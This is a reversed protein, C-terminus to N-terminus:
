QTRVAVSTSGQISGIDDQFQVFVRNIAPLFPVNGKGQVFIGFTPTANPAISTAVSAAPPAMCQGTTPVTQCITIAVPLNANGINASVTVQAATGLNVTAVAFAGAGTSGPIDVIGDNSLTAALAVIDPPQTADASFLLTDLGIVSAAAPANACSFTFPLETAPMPATPTLALEFSQAAGPAISVPVNPSGTLANTKASTAQFSFSAPLDAAPLVTCTTATTDKSSNIVTALVTATSGIKVSRSSPLVASLLTIDSKSNATYSANVTVPANMTVTCAGIGACGGSWGAFTYGQAPVATLTVSTGIAYKASCTFGCAIGAPSSTVAGDASGTPTVSLLTMPPPPPPAPPPPPPPSVPPPPPPPPVPPPPPSPPPPPPPPPSGIAFNVRVSVDSGDLTVQCPSSGTCGGGEFGVFFSGPAATATLTVTTADFFSAGCTGSLTGTTDTCALATTGSPVAQVGAALTSTVTGSGAGQVLIHMTDTPLGVRGIADAFEDTFWLNGDPGATIANPKTSSPLGQTFLKVAGGSPTIRGIAGIADTFWLNGDPGVTIGAPSGNGLGQSFETIAGAPTIRGIAATPGPDTFWLNGDPGAVIGLPSSGGLFGPAQGVTFETIVGAPTVRGIANSANEANGIDTFWLNGDPGPTINEPLAGANLGTSFSTVTGSPTIQLIAGLQNAVWINNDPGLAIGVPTTGAAFATEVAVGANAGTTPVVGYDRPNLADDTFWISQNPDGAPGTTLLEPNSGTVIGMSFETVVPTGGDPELRGIARTSGQDTFWLNGDPGLIINLPVTGANFGSTSSADFETIIAPAAAAPLAALVLGIATTNRALFSISM